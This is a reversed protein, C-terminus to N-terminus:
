MNDSIQQWNESGCAYTNDDIKTVPIAHLVNFAQLGAEYKNIFDLAFACDRDAVACNNDFTDRFDDPNM